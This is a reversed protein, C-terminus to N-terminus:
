AANALNQEHARVRALLARLDRRTFKWEFPRAAVQYYDQFRLLRDQLDELSDFDNPRLVKREVISFYIEIQNLWSAHVPTHVPIVNPWLAQLRAACREGAHSSGNDMIWFVRPASRYPEQGMVDGVLRQFPTIGTKRECRGFLKARRVDWAAFYAWAGLRQYEHEVRALQGSTVPETKHIRHRAQISTKEDTSLVCDAPELRRGEWRGAYLDLIPGARSEFHPDRPFIWSRHKWPRIADEALWRWITTEGISAVIGRRVAERQIDPVFLRSLPLKHEHPLECALAKVAVVVSPPFAPQDAAGHCSRLGQSANRLSASAGSASLKDPRIWVPPSLTTASGLPRLSCLRPEFSMEIRQRIGGPQQRSRLASEVPSCLTLRATGQCREGGGALTARGAVGSTNYTM